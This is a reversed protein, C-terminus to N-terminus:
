EDLFLEYLSNDPRTGIVSVKLGTKNRLAKVLEILTHYVMSNKDGVRKTESVSLHVAPAM